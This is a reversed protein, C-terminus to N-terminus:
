PAARPFDKYPDAAQLHGNSAAQLYSDFKGGFLTDPRLFEAMDTGRWRIVRDHVVTQAQELTFGDKLRARIPKLNAVTPRFSSGNAENLADLWTLAVPDDAALGRKRSRAHPPSIPPTPTPTPTPTPPRRRAGGTSADTSADSAIGHSADHSANRSADSRRRRWREQRDKKAKREAKIESSTPNHDHYDHVRYGGKVKEWLRLMVLRRATSTIQRNGPALTSLAEVPIFGDTLHENCYCLGCCFLDRGLPGAAMAKPNRPFRDDLKAWTM